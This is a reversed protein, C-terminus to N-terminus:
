PQNIVRHSHRTGISLVPQHMDRDLWRIRFEVSDRAQWPEEDKRQYIPLVHSLPCKVLFPFLLTSNLKFPPDILRLGLAHFSMPRTRQSGIVREFIGPAQLTHM